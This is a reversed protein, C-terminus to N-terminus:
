REFFLRFKSLLSPKNGRVFSRAEDRSNFATVEPLQDMGYIYDAVIWIDLEGVRVIKKM